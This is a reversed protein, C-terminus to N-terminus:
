EGSYIHVCVNFYQIHLIFFMGLQVHVVNSIRNYKSTDFYNPFNEAITLGCVNNRRLTIASNAKGVVGLRQNYLYSRICSVIVDGPQVEFSSVTFNRCIYNSINTSHITLMTASGSVLSYFTANYSPRYVAFFSLSQIDTNAGYYCINWQTANGACPAAYATSVFFGVTNSTTTSTATLNDGVTCLGHIGHVLSFVFMMNVMLKM